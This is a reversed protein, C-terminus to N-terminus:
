NQPDPETYEKILYFHPRKSQIESVKKKPEVVVTPTLADGYSM